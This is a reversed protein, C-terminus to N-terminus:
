VETRNLLNNKTKFNFISLFINCNKFLKLCSCMTEFELVIEQLQPYYNTQSLKSPNIKKGKLVLM